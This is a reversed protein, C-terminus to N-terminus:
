ADLLGREQLAAMMRQIGINKPIMLHSAGIERLDHVVSRDFAHISCPVGLERCRYALLNNVDEIQLASVVLKAHPLEADEVMSPHDISGLLTECRLPALKRADTDIALVREGSRFLM